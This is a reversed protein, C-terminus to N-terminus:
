VKSSNDFLAYGQMCRKGDRLNEVEFDIQGDNEWGRVRLADGPIVISTFRGAIHQLLQNPNHKLLAKVAFGYTCLGHLIPRDFGGIKAQEPDIHLPNRDNSLRYLIAQNSSTHLTTEFTALEPSPLQKPLSQCIKVPKPLLHTPQDVWGGLGRVFMGSLVKADIQSEGERKIETEFVVLAGSKKDQCDVIKETVEYTVGIEPPRNIQLSEEGHVLQM